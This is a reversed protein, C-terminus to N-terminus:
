KKIKRPAKDTFFADNSMVRKVATWSFEAQRHGDYLTTTTPDTIEGLWCRAGDWLARARVEKKLKRRLKLEDPTIKNKMAVFVENNRVIKAEYPFYHTLYRGFTTEPYKEMYARVRNSEEGNVVPWASNMRIRLIDVLSRPM